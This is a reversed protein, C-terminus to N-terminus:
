DFFDDFFEDDSVETYNNTNELKSNVVKEQEQSSINANNIKNVLDDINEPSEEKTYNQDKNIPEFDNDIEELVEKIPTTINADSILDKDEISEKDNVMSTEKIESKKDEEALKQEEKEIEAIKADLNALIKDVDIKGNNPKSDFIPSFGGDNMGFPPTMGFNPMSSAFPNDSKKKEKVYERVDFM